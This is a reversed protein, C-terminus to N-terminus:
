GVGERSSAIDFFENSCSFIDISTSAIENPEGQWGLHDVSDRGNNQDMKNTETVTEM